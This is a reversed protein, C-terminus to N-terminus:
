PTSGSAASAPRRASRGRKRALATEKAGDLMGQIRALADVLSSRLRDYTKPGVEGAKRARELAVIEGLLAERAERLDQRADEDMEESGGRQLLLTFGIGLAAVALAVAIWRGMGPTPLGSMTIELSQLGGDARPSQKQTVLLRKGDNGTVRQSPPFGSVDVTMTKSAEATVAMQAVRPPLDIRITQRADGDLPVQYRFSLDHRGPTFTGRLAAGKGSVEDIRADEMAEPKNFARYGAPLDVVLDPVWAVAGLNFVSLLEEVQISDERLTLHVRGQMGLFLTDISTAVEYAHLVVRKGAKDGIPFSPVAFVAPGRSTSVHYTTGSGVALGEFRATGEPDADKAQRERSEGKAVTNHLIGLTIAARPIPREQADKITAVIVGPPLLPDEVSTDPPADFIRPDTPRNTGSSPPPPEDDEGDDDLAPHGPPLGNDVAPHGAPLGNDIAPHGPPLAPTDEGATGAGSPEPPAAASAAASATSKPPPVKPKGSTDAPPNARVAAPVLAALVLAVTVAAKAITRM